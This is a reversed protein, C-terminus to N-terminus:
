KRAALRTMDSADTDVVKGAPSRGVSAMDAFGTGVSAMDPMAMDAM